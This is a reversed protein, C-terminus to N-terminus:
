CSSFFYVLIAPLFMLSFYVISICLLCFIFFLVAPTFGLKDIIVRFIFPNFEGILLCLADPPIVFYSRVIHHRWSIWRLGLSLYLSSTFPHLIISYAFPLWFFPTYGCKHCWIFCVELLIFFLYIVLLCLDINYFSLPSSKCSSM